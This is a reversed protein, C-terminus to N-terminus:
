YPWQSYGGVLNYVQKFDKDKLLNKAKGSRGGSACFVLVPKNPDLKDFEKEFVGGNFDLNIADEITGAQYEEPTRVDILQYDGNAILSKFNEATVDEVIFTTKTNQDDIIEKIEKEISIDSPTSESCSSVILICAFIPLLFHKKNKM